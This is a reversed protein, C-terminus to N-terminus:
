FKLTVPAQSISVGPTIQELSKFDLNNKRALRRQWNRYSRSGKAQEECITLQAEVMGDPLWEPNCDLGRAIWERYWLYSPVKGRRDYCLCELEEPRLVNYIHDKDTPLEFGLGFSNVEDFEESTLNDNSAKAFDLPELGKSYAEAGVTQLRKKLSDSIDNEQLDQLM